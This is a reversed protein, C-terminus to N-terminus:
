HHCNLFNSNTIFLSHNDSLFGEELYLKKKKKKYSNTFIILNSPVRIPNPRVSHRLYNAEVQSALLSFDVDQGM